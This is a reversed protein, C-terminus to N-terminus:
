RFRYGAALRFSPGSTLGGLKPDNDNLANKMQELGDAEYPTMLRFGYLLEGRVFLSKVLSFDMGVGLNIWISNWVSINYAKGDKDQDRTGNTRDYILNYNDPRRRQSLSFQYEVGLLPFLSIREAPTFPYKGLLCFGLMTEWGDGTMSVPEGERYMNEDYSNSGRQVIVALEGYTADFFAFGGFNLQNINQTIEGSSVSSSAKYRTFLGGFLGGTGTSISFDVGWLGMCLSVLIIFFLAKKM